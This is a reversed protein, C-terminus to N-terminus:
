SSPPARDRGRRLVDLGRLGRARLSMAVALLQRGTLPTPNRALSSSTLATAPEPRGRPTDARATM